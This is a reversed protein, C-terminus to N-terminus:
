IEALLHFFNVSEKCEIYKVSPSIQSPRQSSYFVAWSPHAAMDNENNEKLKLYRSCYVPRSNLKSSKQDLDCYMLM